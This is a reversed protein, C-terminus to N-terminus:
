FTGSKHSMRNKGKSLNQIQYLVSMMDNHFVYYSDLLHVLNPVKIFVHIITKSLQEVLISNM